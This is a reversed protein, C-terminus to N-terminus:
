SPVEEYIPGTIKLTGSFGMKDNVPVDPTWEEWFAKFFRVEGSEFEITCNQIVNEDPPENEEPDYHGEISVQGGDYLASPMFTMATETSLHTTDISEWSKSYPQLSTLESEFDGFEMTTGQGTGAGM